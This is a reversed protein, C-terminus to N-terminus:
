HGVGGDDVAVPAKRSLYYRSEPAGPDLSASETSARGFAGTVFAPLRPLLLKGFAVGHLGEMVITFVAPLILLTAGTAVGHEVVLDDDFRRLRRPGGGHVRGLVVM